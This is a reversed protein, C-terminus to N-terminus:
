IKSGELQQREIYNIEKTNKTNKENQGETKKCPFTPQECPSFFAERKEGSAEVYQLVHKEKDSSIDSKWQDHLTM